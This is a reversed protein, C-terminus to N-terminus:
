GNSLAERIRKEIMYDYAKIDLQIRKFSDDNKKLAMGMECLDIFMNRMYRLELLNMSEIKKKFGVNKPHNLLKVIKQKTEENM